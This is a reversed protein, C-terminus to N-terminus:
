LRARAKARLYARVCAAGLAGPPAEIMEAGASRLRVTVRRRANLVDLAVAARYVDLPQEPPTRVMAELEPDSASAVVVAHRRALVPVAEILPRAAAEELLDCLVLVLARKARAVTRFALDYDSDVAAPELDFTARVAADGGSRRPMLQRRIRADFAVAGCRDGVEDAVLGVAALADLAVDLRTRDAPRTPDTVIPAAMLRGMDVLCIVDRDQEVRYQNSMPRGMRATALWNVQRIDDDSAYDRISEFETGLGLPGRGRQGQERFRGHRVALVLRRAAPLDPYVVVEEDDGIRHHWRGLGLPGERRAALAPLVQRGRRQAVLTAHLDGEAERPDLGVDPPTAQRVRLRGSGPPVEVTLAVPVGRSLVSPVRRRLEPPRRVSWADVATAALLALAGLLVLGLPLLLACLSLAGLIAAARPTPTM